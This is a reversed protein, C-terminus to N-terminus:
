CRAAILILANWLRHRGLNFLNRSIIELPFRYRRYSDTVTNM